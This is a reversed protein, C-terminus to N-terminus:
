AQPAHVPLAAARVPLGHGDTHATSTPNSGV